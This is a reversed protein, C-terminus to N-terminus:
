KLTPLVEKMEELCDEIKTFLAEFFFQNEAEESLEIRFNGNNLLNQLETMQLLKMPTLMRHVVGQYEKFNKNNVAEVLEAKLDMWDELVVELYDQVAPKEDDFFALLSSLEFNKYM